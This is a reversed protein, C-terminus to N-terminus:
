KQAERIEAAGARYGEVMFDIHEAITNPGIERYERAEREALRRANALLIEPSPMTITTMEQRREVTRRGRLYPSARGTHGRRIGLPCRRRLYPSPAFTCSTRVPKSQSIARGTVKLWNNELLQVSDVTVGKLAGKLLRAKICIPVRGAIPIAVVPATAKLASQIATLYEM